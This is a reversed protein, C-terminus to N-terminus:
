SCGYIGQWLALRSTVLRQSHFDHLLHCLGVPFACVCVQQATILRISFIYASISSCCSLCRLRPSAVLRSCYSWFSLLSHASRRAMLCRLGAAFGHSSTLVSHRLICAVTAAAFVQWEKVDVLAPAFATSKTINRFQRYTEWCLLAFVTAFLCNFAFVAWVWPKWQDLSSM